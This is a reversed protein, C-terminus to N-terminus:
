KRLAAEETHIMAKGAGITLGDAAAHPRCERSCNGAALVDERGVPTDGANSSDPVFV